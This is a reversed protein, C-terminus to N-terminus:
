PNRGDPTHRYRPMGCRAFTGLDQGQFNFSMLRSRMRPEIFNTSSTSQFPGEVQPTDDNFSQGYVTVLVTANQPQGDKGYRFDPIIYDCIQFDEGEGIVFTGTTVSWNIAAGDGDSSTEHQYILGASTTGIPPGLVSQDIWASRGPAPSATSGTFDWVQQVVDFKVYSDNEGSSSASPYYWGIETFAANSFFRINSLFSRNINQFVKDWVSCPLPVPVGGAAMMFFQNQSMWYFTTGFVGLGKRSILGCGKMVEVIGFVLPQGVFTGSWVGVDTWVLFQNAGQAAAVIKSGSSLTFGGAFDASTPTWNSFNGADSWKLRLPNVVGIDSITGPSNSQGSSVGWAVIIQQPTALFIGDAIFPAQPIMQLNSLSSEPGWQYIAGGAPNAILIEGWNFLSWDTATIPTGGTGGGGGGPVIGGWASPLLTGGWSSAGWGIGAAQPGATIYYVFRVNGGNMSTPGASSTAPVNGTVDFINSAVPAQALYNGFITIGGVTTSVQFAVSSGVVLGHNVLTVLVQSSGNTTTFSPVVGGPGASSVAPVASIIQYSTPSLVASIQYVGYLVIGGIAVPVQINVSSNVSPASPLSADVVTVTNSGLTTQFSPAPNTTLTRPTLDVLVGSTLVQLATTGGIALHLNLNVDQWGWLARPIGVAVANAYYRSWGGIKEFLGEKWRIYVGDIIGAKAMVPTMEKEVGPTLILDKFAM